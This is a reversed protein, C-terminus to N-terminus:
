MPCDLQAQPVGVSRGYAQALERQERDGAHIAFRRGAFVVHRVDGLVFDAFWPGNALAAALQDGFRDAQDDPCSFDIMTWHGPQGSVPNAIKIRQLRRLTLPVDLVAEAALSEAVLTGIVPM